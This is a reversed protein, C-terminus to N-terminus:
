PVTGVRGESSQRLLGVVFFLVFPITNIVQGIDFQFGGRIDVWHVLAFLGWFTTMAWHFTMSAEYHRVFWFTILGAFILLSGFEQMIHLSNANGAGIDEILARVPEPLLGTGLLLVSIGAVLFVVGLLIYLSTAVARTM